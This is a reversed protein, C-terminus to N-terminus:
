TEASIKSVEEMKDTLSKNLFLGASFVALIIGSGQLIRSISVFDSLPGFFLMALPVFGSTLMSMIGFVRGLYSEEVKEQLYVTAATNTFPITLGCLIMFGLYFPFSSVSGLGISFLAFFFSAISIVRIKKSFNKKVAVIIGGAVMGVAFSIEAFTLLMVDDGFLRAVQLPTLMAAPTLFLFYAICFLFFTLLQKRQQIFTLGSLMDSAFDTKESQMAQALSKVKVLSFLVIIGIIATFVDILFVFGISANVLLIGSLLPAGLSIIPQISGFIGNIRTLEETPVIQPLIASTAPMQIGSGLSRIVSITFILWVADYGLFFSIALGLTSLAIFSDSLIILLKRDYRDAWVGAFPSLFFAPLFGCIAAVTMMTGSGTELTIHWTIAYQVLSSGLLTITQSILFLAINQKWNKKETM